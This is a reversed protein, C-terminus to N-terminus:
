TKSERLCPDDTTDKWFAMGAMGAMVGVLLPPAGSWSWVVYWLFGFLLSFFLSLSRFVLWKLWDRQATARKAM